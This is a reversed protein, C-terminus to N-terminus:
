NIGVRRSIIEFLISEMFLLSGKSWPIKLRVFNSFLLTKSCSKLISSKLSFKPNWGGIKSNATWPIEIVVTDIRPSQALITQKITMFRGEKFVPWHEEMLARNVLMAATSIMTKTQLYIFQFFRKGVFKMFTVNQMRSISVMFYM